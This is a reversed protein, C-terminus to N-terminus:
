SLPLYSAEYACPGLPGSNPEWYQGAELSFPAELVQGTVWSAELWQGLSPSLM